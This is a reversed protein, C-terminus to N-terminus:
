LPSNAMVKEEQEMQDSILAAYHGSRAILAHHRGREVIQGEHLVMILDANRITSLRHAVVVRTCALANLHTEVLNETTVDLHSTAEDLVLITPKSALARALSLRQRQGGSLANGGESVMTEYQMPMQLIDDHIAALKAAQMTEELTLEPNGFAINQRISTNFLFPEQLVVGFQQRLSGFNLQDHSQGDYLIAGSSPTYLGVLLKALTSKGSGTLGVIAVKQGPLITASLDQLIYPANEDYRFSVNEISIQGQLTPAIQVQTLDQEPKADLVDAVRDLHATVLQLQRGSSVLSGLPVLFAVALTNLALMTGLSMEGALVYRAGMWLLLLPSFTRINTMIIEIVATVYNQKVTANLQKFFLNSWKDFAISEAGAAKLTEIGSLAEVLYGQEKSQEALQQQVLQQVPRHTALLMGIQLIGIMLVFIGFQSSQFLIIVLYILIFSSDLLLSITQNTLIERITANSNLRMLLDGTSRQQFFHFPLSLIHEFFGMMLQSDLKAQLYILMSTRLYSATFQALLLIFIGVGLYAMLDDMKFPLIDDILLKTIVPIILGLLQLLLSAGLVQSILRLIGPSSLLYKSYRKWPAALVETRREFHIGPELTLIVGTSKTSFETITLRHRGSGPDVIDIFESSWKEVIVFHNFGWHAIAPLAIHQLSDPELSYAKVRLGHQRGVRAIIQATLGDRGVSCQERIEAVRTKRGYFSLVMALCAAGCEASSLQLLVPVRGQKYFSLLDNIWGLINFLWKSLQRNMKKFSPAQTSSHM